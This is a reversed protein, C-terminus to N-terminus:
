RRGTIGRGTHKEGKEDRTEFYGENKSSHLVDSVSFSAMVDCVKQRGAFLAKELTM